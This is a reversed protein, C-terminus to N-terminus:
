FLLDIAREKAFQMWEPGPDTNTVIAHIESFEAFKVFAGRNFKSDDALLVVKDAHSIMVKKLRAESEYSDFIGKNMDLGKCGMILIDVNYNTVNSEAVAGQFSLSHRNFEGGVTMVHLSSEYLERVIEISNTLLRVDEWNKILKIVELTTSSADAGISHQDQLLPITKIAIAQKAKVNIRARQFFPFNVTDTSANLIAGGYTRTILGELELKELDRRITEETVDFQKSLQTVFIKKENKILQRITTLREGLAM